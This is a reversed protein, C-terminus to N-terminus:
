FVQCRESPQLRRWSSLLLAQSGTRSHPTSFENSWTRPMLPSTNQLICHQYQLMVPGANDHLFVSCRIDVNCSKQESQGYVKKKTNPLEIIINITTAQQMFEVMQVGKRDSGLFCNGDAQTTSTHADAAKHADSAKVARQYWRECIFGLKWWRNRMRHSQSIWRWQPIARFLLLSIRLWERHKTIV